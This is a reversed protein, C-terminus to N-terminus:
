CELSVFSIERTFLKKGRRVLSGKTAPPVIKQMLIYAEREKSDMLKLAKVLEDSYLNWGGVERQPKLVFGQPNELAM